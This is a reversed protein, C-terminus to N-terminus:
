LIEHSTFTEGYKFLYDIHLSSTDAFPSIADCKKVKAESPPSHDAEHGLWKVGPPPSTRSTWQVHPQTPVLTCPTRGIKSLDPSQLASLAAVLWQLRATQSMLHRRGSSFQIRPNSDWVLWTHKRKNQTQTARHIYRGQTPSNGWGLLRVSQIRNLVQLSVFHKMSVRHELQSCCSYTSLIYHM